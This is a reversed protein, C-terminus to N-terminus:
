GFLGKKKPPPPMPMGAPAPPMGMPRAMSPPMSSPMRPPAMPNPPAFSQRQFSPPPLTIPEERASPKELMDAVAVVGRAIKQNQDVLLDIKAFLPDMRRGITETEREEFKMEEAATKFLDILSNIAKTMNNMSEILDGSGYAQFPNRKIQAVDQKLKLVDEEPVIAYDKAM